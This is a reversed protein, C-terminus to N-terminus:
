GGFPLVKDNLFDAVTLANKRDYLKVFAVRSYTDIFTPQYIRGIGKMNGIYFTDQSGLYGPHETEIEGITQKEEKAREWAVIQAETLILGEQAVKAELAKLRKKFSELDHRLWVLAFEAQHFSHGAGRSNTLLELRVM